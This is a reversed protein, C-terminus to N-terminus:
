NGYCLPPRMTPIRLYLTIVACKVMCTKEQKKLVWNVCIHDTKNKLRKQVLSIIFYVPQCTTSVGLKIQRDLM